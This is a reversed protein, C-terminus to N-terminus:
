REYGNMKARHRGLAGTRGGGPQPLAPDVIGAPVEGAFEPAPAGGQSLPRGTAGEDTKRAVESTSGAEGVLAEALDELSGASSFVRTESNQEFEKVSLPSSTMTGSVGITRYGLDKLKDVASLASLASDASLIVKAAARQKFYGDALLMATERELIGDAVEMIVIDPNTKELDSIMRDLLGILEGKTCLYTSPFGYDSFDSTCIASAAIMEDQDRSSVSGTLKCAAVRLGKRSLARILKCSTTTKGTSMGTGVIVVLNKLSPQDLPKKFLLDKLNVRKGSNKDILFGIISVHTPKGFDRHKSKITGVMGGSTLLSIDELGTVEAEVYETAYRNGFVGVFLDEAYLRLKKNIDTMLHSHFGVQQVRFLGLDGPVPPVCSDAVPYDKSKLHRCIWSWKDITSTDIENLASMFRALSGRNVLM